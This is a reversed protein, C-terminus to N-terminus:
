VLNGNGNTHYKDKSLAHRNAQEVKDSSINSTENWIGLQNQILRYANRSATAVDLGQLHVNVSMTYGNFIM